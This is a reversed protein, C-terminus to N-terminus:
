NATRVMAYSLGWTSGLVCYFFAGRIVLRSNRPGAISTSRAKQAADSTGTARTATLVYIPEGSGPVVVVWWAGPIVRNM